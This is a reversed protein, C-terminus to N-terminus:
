QRKLGDSGAGAYGEDLNALLSELASQSVSSHPMM